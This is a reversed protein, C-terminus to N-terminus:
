AAGHELLGALREARALARAADSRYRRDLAELEADTCAALTLLVCSGGRDVVYAPAGLPAGGRGALARELARRGRTRRERAVDAAVELAAGANRRVARVLDRLESREADTM